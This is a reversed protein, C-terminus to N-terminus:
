TALDRPAKEMWSVAYDLGHNETMVKYYKEIMRRIHDAPITTVWPIQPDLQGSASWDSWLIQRSDTLVPILDPDVDYVWAVDAVSTPKWVQSIEYIYPKIKDVIDIDLEGSAAKEEIMRFADSLSLKDKQYPRHGAIAAWQEIVKVLKAVYPINSM